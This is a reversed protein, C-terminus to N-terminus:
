LFLKCIVRNGCGCYTLEHFSFMKAMAIGRGHNDTVRDTSIELYNEWNFGEGEDSIILNIAETKKELEVTVQRHQYQPLAQRRRVEQLWEGRRNLESKQAYTIGLNGHEVANILLESMGSVVKKPCPYLDAVLTAVQSAEELTTFKLELQTVLTRLSQHKGLERQLKRANHGFELAANVIAKLVEEDYPKTLYYYAGADIGERIQGAEAAATQMIVPIERARPVTKLKHLFAIGDLEPMMRDLLILDFNFGARTLKEWGELGHRATILYYGAEALYASILKLNRQDDDIALIRPSM